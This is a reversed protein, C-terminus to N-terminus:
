LIWDRAVAFFERMYYNVLTLRACASSNGSVHTLGAERAVALARYMHYGTTTVVVSADKSTMMAAANKLNETTNTSQDEILLRDADIGRAILAEYMAQAETTPEDSGQGGCLIAVTNGNNRLYEAAKDIRENLLRSPGSEKVRAGLVVVYDANPEPAALSGAIIRSEVGIVVILAAAMLVGLAISVGRAAAPSLRSLVFAAGLCVAGLCLWFLEFGVKFGLYMALAFYYLISVGGLVAMLAIMVRVGGPINRKM